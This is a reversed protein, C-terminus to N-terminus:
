CTVAIWTLEITETITSPVYAWIAGTYNNLTVPDKGPRLNFPSSGIFRGNEDSILVYEDTGLSTAYVFTALNGPGTGSLTAHITNTFELGGDNGSVWETTVDQAVRLTLLVAGGSGDRVELKGVGSTVGDTSALTVSKLFAPRAVVNGTASIQTAIVGPGNSTATLVVSKRNPDAPLILTPATFATTLSLNGTLLRGPAKPNEDPNAPVPQVAMKLDPPSDTEIFLSDLVPGDDDHLNQSEFPLMPQSM